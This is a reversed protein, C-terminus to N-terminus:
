AAIPALRAIFAADVRYVSPTCATLPSTWTDPEAELAARRVFGSRIGARHHAEARLLYRALAWYLTAVGLLLQPTGWLLRLIRSWLVPAVTTEDTTTSHM